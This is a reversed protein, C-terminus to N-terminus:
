AHPEAPFSPHRGANPATPWWTVSVTRERPVFGLSEYLPLAHYDAVAGIVLHRAGFTDIATRGAEYVVRSALGQRRHTPATDVNQYRARGDTVIVGCSSAVTGDETIAVFWGGDGAFFRERRGAMRDVLFRRHAAEEHGADRTAVQLETVAAWLEADAGPTPDLQVVRAGAHMRAHPVLEHPQAILAVVEDAEYGAEVFEADAAGREGGPMDWAFARHRSDRQDDTGFEREFDREWRERDGTRPAERYLLFNGWYHLPARPSRVVVYSGRDEVIADDPLVDIDTAAMLSRIEVDTRPM